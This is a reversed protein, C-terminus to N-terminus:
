HLFPGRILTTGAAAKVRRALRIRRLRRDGLFVLLVGALLGGISLSATMVDGALRVGLVVGSLEPRARGPSVQAGAILFSILAAIPLGLCNFGTTMLSRAVIEGLRGSSSLLVAGSLAVVVGVVMLVPDTLVGPRAAACITAIFLMWLTGCVGGAMASVLIKLLRRRLPRRGVLVAFGVSVPFLVVALGLLGFLAITVREDRADVRICGACVPLGAIAVSLRSVWSALPIIRHGPDPLAATTPKETVRADGARNGVVYVLM